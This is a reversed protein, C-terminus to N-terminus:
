SIASINDVSLNMCESLTADEEVEKISISIRDNYDTDETPVFNFTSIEGSLLNMIDEHTLGLQIHYDKM